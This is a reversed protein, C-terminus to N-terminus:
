NRSTSKSNQIQSKSNILSFVQRGGSDSLIPRNWGMFKHIGGLSKIYESGLKQELHLTTTVIEKVGSDKVDKFSLSKVTGYTADPMFAPLSINGHKTPISKNM